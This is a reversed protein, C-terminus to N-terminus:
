PLVLSTLPSARGAWGLKSRLSSFCCLGSFLLFGTGVIVSSMHSTIEVQLKFQPVIKYYLFTYFVTKTYKITSNNKDMQTNLGRM